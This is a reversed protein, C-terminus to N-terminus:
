GWSRVRTFLRRERCSFTCVPWRRPVLRTKISLTASSNQFRARSTMIKLLRREGAPRAFHGNAPLYRRESNTLAGTASNLGSQVTEVDIDAAHFDFIMDFYGNPGIYSDYEDLPVGPAEGVTVCRHRNFTKEKLENLFLEIGPRNRSKSKISALGDVGDAPLSGYDQDKKIFTIADIRFGAIGKDLWWNVMSYIEERLQPNEWNLDPQKKHFVHLYWTEEGAVKEWASGGFISRWNNPVGGAVAPKFIYYDRYKSQPDALAAQFWPHEDSTHNVVLDIMVQIGMESAQKILDDVDQMQGLDPNVAYYDAIDYGNDAMPSQYFPSVWIMTIGLKKLYPLKAIIGKIDGIGDNNSDYFSKPYVQYIVSEKWWATQQPQNM